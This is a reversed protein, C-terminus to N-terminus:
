PRMLTINRESPETSSNMEKNGNGELLQSTCEEDQEGEEM